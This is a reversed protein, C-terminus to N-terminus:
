TPKGTDSPLSSAVCPDFILPSKEGPFPTGCRECPSYGVLYVPHYAHTFERPSVVSRWDHTISTRTSLPGSTM